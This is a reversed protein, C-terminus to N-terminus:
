IGPTEGGDSNKKVVNSETLPGLTITSNPQDGLNLSDVKKSLSNDICVPFDIMGSTMLSYGIIAGIAGVTIGLTLAHQMLFASTITMPLIEYMFFFGITFGAAVSIFSKMYYQYNISDSATRNQERLWETTEPQLRRGSSKIAAMLRRLQNTEDDEYQGSRGGIFRSFAQYEAETEYFYDRLAERDESSLYASLRQYLPPTETWLLNTPYVKLLHAILEVPATNEIAVDMPTKESAGPANYFIKAQQLKQCIAGVMTTHKKYVARDIITNGDVDKHTLLDAINADDLTDLIAQLAKDYANEICWFVASQSQDFSKGNKSPAIFLQYDCTLSTSATGQQIKELHQKLQTKKSTEPIVSALTTETRPTDYEALNAIGFHKTFEDLTISEGDEAIKISPVSIKDVVYSYMVRVMDQNNQRIAAHLITDDETYASKSNVGRRTTFIDEVSDSFTSLFHNVLDSNGQDILYFLLTEDKNLASGATGTARNLFAELAYNSFSPSDSGQKCQNIHSKLSTKSTIPEPM